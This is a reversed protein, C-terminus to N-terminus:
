FKQCPVRRLANVTDIAAQLLTGVDQADFAGPGDALLGQLTAHIGQLLRQDAPSFLALDAQGTAKFDLYRVDDDVAHYCGNNADSFFVTPIGVAVLNVYDSRLQGFIYSLLQTGLGEAQVAQDVMAEFATGGTEAGVAFSVNKASRRILYKQAALSGSTTHDRGAFKKGATRVVTRLGKHAQSAARDVEGPPLAHAASGLLLGLAVVSRMRDYLARPRWRGLVPRRAPTGGNGDLRALGLIGATVSLGDVGGSETGQYRRGSQTSTKSKKTNPGSASGYRHFLGRKECPSLAASVITTITYVASRTRSVIAKM